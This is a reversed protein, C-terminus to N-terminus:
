SGRKNWIGELDYFGRVEPLFLHVIVDGGDVLVWNAEPLGEIRPHQAGLKIFAEDLYHAIAALQRSARGSAVILYDAVPSRGALDFSVIDEAKREDLIKLAADRLQEPLGSPRRAVRAVPQSVPKKKVVKTKPPVKKALTKKLIKKKTKVKEAIPKKGKQAPKKKQATKNVKAV